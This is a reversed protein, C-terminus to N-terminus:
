RGIVDRAQSARASMSSASAAPAGTSVAALEDTCLRRAQESPVRLAVRTQTCHDLARQRFTLAAGHLSRPVQPGWPTAQPVQLEQTSSAGNFSLLALFGACQVLMQLNLLRTPIKM